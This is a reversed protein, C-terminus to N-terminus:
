YAQFRARVVVKDLGEIGFLQFRTQVGAQANQLQVVVQQFRALLHELLDRVVSKRRQQIASCNDLKQGAFQHARSALVTASDSHKAIKVVELLDVIGVSM